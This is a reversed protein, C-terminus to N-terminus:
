LVSIILYNEEFDDEGFMVGNKPIQRDGFENICHNIYNSGDLFNFYVPEEPHKSDLIAIECDLLSVPNLTEILDKVTM